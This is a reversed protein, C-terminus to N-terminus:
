EAEGNKNNELNKNEVIEVIKIGYTDEIAVIKGRAILIGDVYIDIPDDEAKDLTIISGTDYEIADKLLLKARGLEACLTVEVNGVKTINNYNEKEDTVKEPMLGGQINYKYCM